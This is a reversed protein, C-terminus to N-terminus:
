NGGELLLPGSMVWLDRKATEILCEVESLDVLTATATAEGLPPLLEIKLQRDDEDFFVTFWLQEEGIWFEAVALSCGPKNAWILTLKSTTMIFYGYNM